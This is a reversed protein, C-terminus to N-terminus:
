DNELVRLQLCHLISPTLPDVLVDKLHKWNLKFLEKLNMCRMVQRTKPLLLIFASDKHPNRLNDM